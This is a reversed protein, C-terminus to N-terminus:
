RPPLLVVRLTTGGGDRARAVYAGAAVPRGAESRGDWAFEYRGGQLGGARLTRVLRGAVDYIGVEDAGPVAPFALQM